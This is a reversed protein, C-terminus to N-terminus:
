GAKRASDRACNHHKEGVTKPPGQPGLRVKTSRRPDSQCGQRRPWQRVSARGQGQSAVGRAEADPVCRTCDGACPHHRLRPSPAPSRFFKSCSVTLLRAPCGFVTYPSACLACCSARAVDHHITPFRGSCIDDCTESSCTCISHILLHVGELRSMLLFGELAEKDTAACYTARNTDKM